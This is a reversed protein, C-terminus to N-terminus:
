LLDTLATLPSGDSGDSSLRELQAAVQEVFSDNPEAAGEGLIPMAFKELVVWGEALWM